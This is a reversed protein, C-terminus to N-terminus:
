LSTNRGERECMSVVMPRTTWRLTTRANWTGLRVIITRGCWDAAVVVLLARVIQQRQEAEAVRLLRAVGVITVVAILTLGSMSMIASLSMESTGGVPRSRFCSFLPLRGEDALEAAVAAAINAAM